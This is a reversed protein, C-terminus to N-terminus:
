SFWNVSFGEQSISMTFHFWNPPVYLVDGPVLIVKMGYEKVLDAVMSEHEEAPDALDVTSHRESPHDSPFVHLMKEIDITRPFLLWIKTGLLQLVVNQLSDYHASWKVFSQVHCRLLPPITEHQHFVDPPLALLHPVLKPPVFAHTRPVVNYQHQSRAKKIVKLLSDKSSVKTNHHKVLLSSTSKYTKMKWPGLDMALDQLRAYTTTADWTFTQNRMLFPQDFVQDQNKHDPPLSQWPRVPVPAALPWLLQANSSACNPSKEDNATTCPCTLFCIATVIFLKM